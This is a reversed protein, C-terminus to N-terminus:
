ADTWVAEGIALDIAAKTAVGFSEKKAVQATDFTAKEEATMDAYKADL